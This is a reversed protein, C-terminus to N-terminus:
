PRAVMTPLGFEDFARPEARPWQTVRAHDKLQGECASCLDYRMHFGGPIDPGATITVTVEAFDSPPRRDIFDEIRDCGDCRIMKM